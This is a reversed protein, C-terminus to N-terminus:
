KPDPGSFTGIMWKGNKQKVMLVTFDAEGKPGKLIGSFNVSQPLDPNPEQTEFSWSQFGKVKRAVPSLTPDDDYTGALLDKLIAETDPLAEKVLPNDAVSKKPVAPSAAKPPVASNCGGHFGCLMLITFVARTYKRM